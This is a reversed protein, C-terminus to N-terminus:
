LELDASLDAKGQSAGKKALLNERAEAEFDFKARAQGIWKAKAASIKDKDAESTSKTVRPPTIGKAKLLEQAKIWALRDIETELASKGVGDSPARFTIEGSFIKDRRATVLKTVEASITDVIDEESMGAAESETRLKKAVGAISEQASAKLGHLIAYAAGEATMQELNFEVGYLTITSEPLTFNIEITM